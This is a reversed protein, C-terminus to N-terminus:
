AVAKPSEAAQQAVDQRAKLDMLAAALEEIIALHQPGFELVLDETPETNTYVLLAVMPKHEYPVVNVCAETDLVIRTSYTIRTTM